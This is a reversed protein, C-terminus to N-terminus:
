RYQRWAAVGSWILVFGWFIAYGNPEPVLNGRWAIWWAGTALM